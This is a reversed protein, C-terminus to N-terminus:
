FNGEALDALTIKNGSENYTLDYFLSGLGGYLAVKYEYGGSIKNVSDVKVYGSEIIENRENYIVFPTKRLPNFSVGTHADGFITKRDTRYLNGFIENNTPTGKLTIQKSFSNKVITPNSLDEMTYNFLIFSNDDLDVKKGAIYLSIKEM